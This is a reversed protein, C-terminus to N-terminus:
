NTNPLENSNGVSRVPAASGKHVMETFERLDRLSPSNLEVNTLVSTVFRPGHGGQTPCFSEIEGSPILYIGMGQLLDVLQECDRRPQGNPVGDLGHKKVGAWLSKSKYADDIDQKKPLSDASVSDLLEQIKAKIKANCPPTSNNIAASVRRWHVDAAAWDGGTAKVLKKLFVGDSIADFDLVVKVPVGVARLVEAALPVNDKGGTPVYSTDPWTQQQVEQMHDAISSFLRCDSDDECLIAQDHFIADLAGSFRLIPTEWLRKIATPSAEYIGNVTGERRIRLIRVKGKQGELFGRLIDSDHTAVFLQGRAETSLTQGLKRAQPPHLFAEPEDICIIDRPSVIAQFLIGAYSRMGDGQVHLAPHKKVEQTYAKTARDPHKSRDPSEGVHIPIHMGGLYNIVLGQGFAREFLDSIKAMLGEDRHLLHQPKTAADEDGVQMQLDCIGLRSAADLNRIFGGSLGGILYPRDWHQFSNRDFQWDGLVFGAETRQGARQVYSHLEERTGKKELTLNKLVLLDSYDEGGQTKSVIERITRSKGSNNAGVLMVKDTAELKIEDGSSFELKTIWVRPIVHAAAEDKFTISM